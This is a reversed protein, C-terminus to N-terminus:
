RKILIRLTASLKLFNIPDDPHLSFKDDDIVEASGEDTPAGETPPGPIDGPPPPPLRVQGEPLDEVIQSTAKRKKLAKIEANRAKKAAALRVKEAQKAAAQQLKEQKKTESIALNDQAIRAREADFAEKGQKKADALAKKNVAKCTVEQQKQAEIKEIVSVRQRLIDNDTDQPLCASWLQPIIIPGYVTSLLLWQDATLSGGSPMGIDTPLKGCSGPI